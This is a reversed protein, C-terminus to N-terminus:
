PQGAEGRAADATLIMERELLDNAGRVALTRIVTRVPEGHLEAAAQIRELEDASLRIAVVQREAM